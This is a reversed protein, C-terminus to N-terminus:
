FHVTCYKHANNNLSNAGKSILIVSHTRMLLGPSQISGCNNTLINRVINNNVVIHCTRIFM